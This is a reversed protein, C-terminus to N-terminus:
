KVLVRKGNYYYIGKTTPKANLLRGSMDFWSDSVKANGVYSNRKTFTTTFVEVEDEGLVFDISEPLVFDDISMMVPRSNFEPDAPAAETSPTFELYARMPRLWAGAAFQVFEGAKAGSANRAAFGYINGDAAEAANWKHYVYTGKFSWSSGDGNDTISNNVVSTNFTVPGDFTLMGDESKVIVIYPANAILQATRVTDGGAQWHGNDKKKLSVTYFVGGHVNATDISFPLVITSAKGVNFIRNFSVQDVTVDEPISIPTMAEDDILASTTGNENEYISVGGYTAVLIPYEAWQATLTIDGTSNVPISEVIEDNENKWGLFKFGSKVPTPLSPEGAITYTEPYDVEFVGDNLVYNIDYEIASLRATITRNGVSGGASLGEILNGNEDEWGLFDYGDISLSAPFVVSDEVTYTNPTEDINDGNAVYTITYTNIAWHPYLTIDANETYPSSVIDGNANEWGDQTYGSRTFKETSLEFDVDHTKTGSEISDEGFEGANYTVTYTDPIWKAYFTTDGTSGKAIGTVADGEFEANTFWGDFTYGASDAPNRLTIADDVTYLTDCRPKDTGVYTIKYIKNLKGYLTMNGITGAVIQTVQKTYKKDSFWGGFKYGDPVSSAYKIGTNTLVTYTEPNQANNTCGECVYTISYVIPEGWTPYLTVPATITLTDGLEHEKAGAMTTSWGDQEYGPRRFFGASELIFSTGHEAFQDSISGYSNNDALYMVRYKKKSWKAYFTKDGTSGQLIKNAPHTFEADNYWGEFNYGEVDDPNTLTITPTEVNYSTLNDGENGVGNMEYTISFPTKEWKAYLVWNTDITTTDFIFKNECSSEKYWGGFEYGDDSEPDAPPNTKQRKEVRVFDVKTKGHGNDNYTVTFTVAQTWVAHLTTDSTANPLVSLTDEEPANETLAWGTFYFKVSDNKTYSFPLEINEVTIRENKALQITKTTDGDTFVGPAASFTVTYIPYWIAYVNTAKSVSGLDAVPDTANSDLSWGAFASDAHTPAEIEAASIVMGKQLFVNKSVTGDSYSGSKVKFTIKYGDAGYGNLSLGTLGVSWPEEKCTSDANKGNLVCAIDEINTVDAKHTMDKVTCKSGCDKGVGGVANGNYTLNGEFYSNQATMTGSYVNGVVGGVAGNAGKNVLGPGAYVCSSVTVNTKTIGIIGGIFASAGSTQIEVLSLCNSISGIKANGVIGGVGQGSGTTKITGSAMCNDVVNKTVGDSMWGVIAGVSIQSDKNSVIDGSKTSAYIDVDELILNRVTGNGLVGVFGLNQPYNKNIASLEDGNIYLNRVVHGNGDFVRAYKPTGSGAAIPIWLKGGMDLDNLLIANNEINKSLWALEKETTIKKYVTDNITTDGPTSVCDKWITATELCDAAFGQGFALLIILVFIQNLKFKTNKM